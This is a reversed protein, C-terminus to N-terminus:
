LIPNFGFRAEKFVFLPKLKRIGFFNGQNGHLFDKFFFAKEKNISSALPIFSLPNPTKM